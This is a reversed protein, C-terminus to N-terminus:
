WHLIQSNMYIYYTHLNEEPHGMRKWALELAEIVIGIYKIYQKGEL